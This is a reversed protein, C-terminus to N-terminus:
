RQPQIASAEARNAAEIEISTLTMRNDIARRCGYRHVERAARDLGRLHGNRFVTRRAGALCFKGISSAGRLEDSIVAVSM